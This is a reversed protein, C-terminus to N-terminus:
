DHSHTSENKQHHDICVKAAGRKTLGPLWLRHRNKAIKRYVHEGFKRMFRPKALPVLFWLLPSHRAAEVGAQFTTFLEGKENIVVWSDTALMTQYVYENAQAPGVHSTRILLWKVMLNVSQKCFGCQSDYYISIKPKEKM